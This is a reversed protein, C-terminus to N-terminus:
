SKVEGKKQYSTEERIQRSENEEKKKDPGM